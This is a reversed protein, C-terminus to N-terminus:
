SSDNNSEEEKKMKKKADQRQKRKRKKSAEIMERFFFDNCIETEHGLLTCIDNESVWKRRAAKIKERKPTTDITERELGKRKFEKKMQFSYM